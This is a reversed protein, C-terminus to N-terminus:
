KNEKIRYKTGTYLNNYTEKKFSLSIDQRRLSIQHAIDQASMGWSEWLEIYKDEINQTRGLIKNYYARHKM